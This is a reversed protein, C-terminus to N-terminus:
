KVAFCARFREGALRAAEGLEDLSQFERLNGRANDGSFGRAEDVRVPDLNDFGIRDSEDPRATSETQMTNGRM